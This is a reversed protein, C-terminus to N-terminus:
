QIVQVKMGHGLIMRMPLAIGPGEGREPTPKGVIHLEFTSQEPTLAIWDFQEGSAKVTFKKRGGGQLGTKAAWEDKDITYSAPGM